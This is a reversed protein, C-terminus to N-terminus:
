EVEDLLDMEDNSFLTESKGFPHVDTKIFQLYNLEEMLKKQLFFTNQSDAKANHMSAIKKIGMMDCAAQLNAKLKETGKKDKNLENKKIYAKTMELTDLWLHAPFALSQSEWFHFLFKRDFAFINHGVICRNQPSLGDKEFFENCEQIVTSKPSGIFLDAFTKNTIRLADASARKPFECIVNRTIQRRDEFRIISIETVEHYGSKIGTTELDLVYYAIGSM